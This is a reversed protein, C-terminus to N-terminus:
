RGEEAQSLRYYEPGQDERDRRGDLFAKRALEVLGAACSVAPGTQLPLGTFECVGPAHPGLACITEPAIDRKELEARIAAASADLVDTLATGHTDFIQVYYRQKRGDICPLLFDPASATSEGGGTAGAGGADDMVVWTQAMAQLTPVSVLAPPECSCLGKCFAAGIRLGTFSGPGRAYAVVDLEALPTEQLLEEAAAAIQEAHRLGTTYKRGQTAHPTTLLAEFIESSTDIALVSPPTGRSTM